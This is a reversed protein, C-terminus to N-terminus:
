LKYKPNPEYDNSRSYNYLIDWIIKKNNEIKIFDEKKIQEKLLELLYDYRKEAIKIKDKRILHTIKKLQNDMTLRGYNSLELKDITSNLIICNEPKTYDKCDLENLWMEESLVNTSYLSFISLLVIFCTKKM